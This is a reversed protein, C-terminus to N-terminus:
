VLIIHLPVTMLMRTIKSKLTHALYILAEKEEVYRMTQMLSRQVTEDFQKSAAQASDHFYKVQLAVLGLFTISM